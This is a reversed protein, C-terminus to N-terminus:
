LHRRCLSQERPPRAAMGWADCSLEREGPRGQMSFNPRRCAEGRGKSVWLDPRGHGQRAVDPEGELVEDFFSSESSTALPSRGAPRIKTPKRPKQLCVFHFPLSRQGDGDSYSCRGPGLQRM